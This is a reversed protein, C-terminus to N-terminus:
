VSFDAPVLNHKLSDDTQAAPLSYSGLLFLYSTYLLQGAFIQHEWVPRGNARMRSPLLHEDEVGWGATVVRGPPM